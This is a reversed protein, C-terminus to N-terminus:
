RATLSEGIAQVYAYEDGFLLKVTEAIGAHALQQPVGGVVDDREVARAVALEVLAHHQRERVRATVDTAFKVVKIPRGDRDFIPNYSGDIYVERGGKAVRKYEGAAYEGRGLTDWFRRYEASAKLEPEAVVALM